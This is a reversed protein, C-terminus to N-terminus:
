GKIPEQHADKLEIHHAVRKKLVEIKADLNIINRANQKALIDTDTEMKKVMSLSLM